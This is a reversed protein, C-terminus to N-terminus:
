NEKIPITFYFTTGKGIESQLWINGGFKEVIKKCISLGIGTGPYENKSHLRQFILFIKKFYKEEIGIGNDEVSFIWASINKKASIKITPNENQKYKISNSILNSFIQRLLTKDAYVEPLNSYIFRIKGEEITLRFDNSINDIIEQVDVNTYDKSRGVRSFILLNDILEKMRKAGDVAYNIFDNADADLKDAYRKQLLQTFSTVMRLPEQLDHSAVYAFQELDENSLKLNNMTEINNLYGSNDLWNIIVYNYYKVVNIKLAGHTVNNVIDKFGDIEITQMEGTEYVDKIKNLADKTTYFSFLNVFTEDVINGEPLGISKSALSNIFIINFNDIEESGNYIPKLVAIPIQQAKLFSIFQDDLEYRYVDKHKSAHM